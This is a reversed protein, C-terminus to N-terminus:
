LIEEIPRRIRYRRELAVLKAADDSTGDALVFSEKECSVFSQALTQPNGTQCRHGVVVRPLANNGTLRRKGHVRIGGYQHVFEKRARISAVEAAADSNTGPSGSPKM